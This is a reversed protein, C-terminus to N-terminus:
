SKLFDLVRRVMGEKERQFEEGFPLDSFFSPEPREDAVRTTSGRGRVITSIPARSGRKETNIRDM